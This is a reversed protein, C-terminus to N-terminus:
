SPRVATLLVTLRRRAISAGDVCVRVCVDVVVAAAAAAAAATAVSTSPMLRSLLLHISAADVDCRREVSTQGFSQRVLRRIIVAQGLIFVDVEARGRKATSPTICCAM